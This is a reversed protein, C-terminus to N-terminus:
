ELRRIVEYFERPAAPNYGITLKIVDKRDNTREVVNSSGCNALSLADPNSECTIAPVGNLLTPEGTFPDNKLVTVINNADVTFYFDNGSFGGVWDKHKYLTESLAEIVRIGGGTAEFTSKAGIRHYEGTLIEYRGALSNAGLAKVTITMTNNDAVSESSSVIELVIDKFDFPVLGGTLIKLSATVSNKGAPITFTKTPLEFEVGEKAESTKSTAITVTVDKELAVNRGGVYSIEFEYNKPTNAIDKIINVEAEGETFYTLVPGKGFDTKDQDLISDCSGFAIAILILSISRIFLYKKM